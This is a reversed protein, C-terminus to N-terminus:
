TDSFLWFSIPQQPVHLRFVQLCLSQDRFQDSPQWSRAGPHEQRPHGRWSEENWSLITDLLEPFQDLEVTRIQHERILAILSIALIARSRPKPALPAEIPAQPSGPPCRTRHPSPSRNTPCSTVTRPPCGTLRLMDNGWAGSVRKRVFLNQCLLNGFSTSSTNNDEINIWIILCGGHFLIWETSSRAEESLM